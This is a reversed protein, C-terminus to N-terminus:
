LLGRREERVKDIKNNLENIARYLKNDLKKIDDEIKTFRGYMVSDYFLIAAVFCMVYILVSFMKLSELEM